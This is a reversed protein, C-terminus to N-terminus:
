EYDGQEYPDFEPQTRQSIDIAIEELENAFGDTPIELTQMAPEGQMAPHWVSLILVNGDIGSLKEAPLKAEGKSDTIGYVPADTVYIYGRMHDHINCGLVVVGAKDMVITPSENKGYLAFEFTKARSFSYVHHLVDDDNPFSLKQNVPVVSVRPFFNRDRQHIEVMGSPPAALNSAATPSNVTVVAADVANSSSDVVRITLGYVSQITAFFM